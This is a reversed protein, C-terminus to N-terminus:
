KAGEEAAPRKLYPEVLEQWTTPVATKDTM